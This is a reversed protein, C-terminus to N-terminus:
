LINLAMMPSVPGSALGKVLIRSAKSFIYLFITVSSADKFWHRALPFESQPEDSGVVGTVIEIGNRRCVDKEEAPLNDLTRDGGKV